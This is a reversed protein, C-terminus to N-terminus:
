VTFGMPRTEPEFSSGKELRAYKYLDELTLKARKGRLFAEHCANQVVLSIQGGTFRFDRALGEVPIAKAGPIGDRLHLRWLAVRADLGPAKIELKFHFRRSMAIDLESCLNTTVIIIGPFSEMEELFVSQISNEAHDASREASAIRRHILQDGENLLFVPSTLRALVRMEQFMERAQKETEGYFMGRISNANIQVLPRQLANALVGAIFTKGTGPVGHLLINCGDQIEPDGSLSAGMLGWKAFSPRHPNRLRQIVSVILDRTHTDLILQDLTQSTEIRHLYSSESILEEAKVSPSSAADTRNQLAKIATDTLELQYSYSLAEKPDILGKQALINQNEFLDVFRMQERSNRALLSALARPSPEASRFRNLYCVLLLSKQWFRDLKYRAKFSKWAHDKAGDLKALYADMAINVTRGYCVGAEVMSDDSLEPYHLYLIDIMKLAATIAEDPKASEFLRNAQSIPDKGLILNWLLGNLRLCAGFLSRPDYHFDHERLYPASLIERDILNVALAYQDQWGNRRQSLLGRIEKISFDQEGLVTAKHCLEAVLALEEQSFQYAKLLQNQSILAGIRGLIASTVRGTNRADVLAPEQQNMQDEDNSESPWIENVDMSKLAQMRELYSGLARM